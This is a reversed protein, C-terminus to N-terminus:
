WGTLLILFVGALLGTLAIFKLGRNVERFLHGGVFFSVVVNLRRIVILLAILAASYSLARFYLFDSCVLLIGALPISWRWQFPSIKGRGPYWLILTLVSLIVVIYFSFWTLVVMPSFGMKQILLKDYLGSISGIITELILLFVWKNRHFSIGERNSLLMFGYYSFLIVVLGTWQTATPQEHFVFVAGILTWFPSTSRIPAFISIPLHKLAFFGFTWSAAVIVAKFFLFLHARPGIVPVYLGTKMMFDPFFRSLIIVPIVLVAGCVTASWLVPLVANENVAHKRGVDYFGLFLASSIGLVIWM